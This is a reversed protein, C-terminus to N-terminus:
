LPFPPACMGRRACCVSKSISTRKGQRLSIYGCLRMVLSLFPIRFISRDAIFIFPRRLSAALVPIDLYSLHNCLIISDNQWEASSGSCHLRIGFIRLFGRAWFRAIALAGGRRFIRALILIPLLFFFHLLACLMRLIVFIGRFLRRM